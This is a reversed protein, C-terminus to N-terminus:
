ITKGKAVYDENRLTFTFNRPDIEKVVHRRVSLMTYSVVMRKIFCSCQLHLLLSFINLTKINGLYM